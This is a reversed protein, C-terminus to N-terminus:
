FGEGRILKGGCVCDEVLRWAGLQDFSFCLIREIWAVVNFFLLSVPPYGNNHKRDLTPAVLVPVSKPISAM